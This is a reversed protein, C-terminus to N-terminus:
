NADTITVSYTGTTLSTLDKSTAGTNWLYTYPSTGGSVTLTVAGNSGSNCLVNTAVANGSLIVPQSIIVSSLATCGNADTVNVIYTGATLGTATVTTQIPITSWSYSYQGTGGAPVATTSGNSGGFCSVNVQTESVTLAAPQTITLNVITTCLKIDQVSVSHAGAALGNFTGSSQYAGGDLSYQYPSTGGAASLTVSGTSGGFCLVNIQSVISGTLPAPQTIVVNVNQACLKSDQVIM